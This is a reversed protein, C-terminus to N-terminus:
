DTYIHPRHLAAIGVLPSDAVGRIDPPTTSEVALAPANTATFLATASAAASSDTAGSSQGPLTPPAKAGSFLWYYAEVVIVNPVWCTWAIISYPRAFGEGAGGIRLAIPLYIRLTVAAFSLASSHAMLRAHLVHRHTCAAFVGGATTAIWLVALSAFAATSIAGGVATTSLALFSPAPRVSAFAFQM